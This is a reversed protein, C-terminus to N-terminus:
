VGAIGSGVEQSLCNNNMRQFRTLVEADAVAQSQSLAADKQRLVLLTQFDWLTEFSDWDTRALQVAENVVTDITSKRALLQPQLIPLAAVNGVQFDM